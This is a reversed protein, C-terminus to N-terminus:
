IQRQEGSIVIGVSQHFGGGDLGAIWHCQPIRVVHQVPRNSMPYPLSQRGNSEIGFDDGKQLDQARYEAGDAQTRTKRASSCRV